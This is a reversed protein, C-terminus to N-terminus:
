LNGWNDGQGGEGLEGGGAKVVDNETDVPQAYIYIHEKSIEELQLKKTIQKNTKKM